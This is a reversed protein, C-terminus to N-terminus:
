ATKAGDRSAGGLRRAVLAQLGEIDFPKELLVNSVRAFFAEARASRVGGTMFIVREAAEPMSAVLSEYFAFGDMTPMMLDCFVVDYREGALLRALAAAPQAMYVVECHGTLAWVIAAGVLFQDDIVLVRGV